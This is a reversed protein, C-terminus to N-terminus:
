LILVAMYDIDSDVSGALMIKQLNRLTQAPLRLSRSAM